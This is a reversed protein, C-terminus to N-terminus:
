NSPALVSVIAENTSRFGLLEHIYWYLFRGSTTSPCVDDHIADESKDM